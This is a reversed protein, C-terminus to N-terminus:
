CETECIFGIKGPRSTKATTYIRIFSRTISTQKGLLAPGSAIFRFEGHTTLFINDEVLIQKIELYNLKNCLHLMKM